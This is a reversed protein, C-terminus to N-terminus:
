FSGSAGVGARHPQSLYQAQTEPEPDVGLGGGPSDTGGDQGTEPWLEAMSGRTSPWRRWRGVSFVAVLLLGGLLLATGSRIPTSADSHQGAISLSSHRFVRMVTGPAALLLLYSAAYVAGTAVAGLPSWRLTAILGLLLGAAALMFVPRAFDSGHLVGARDGTAFVQASRDQGFAILVWALPGIVVAAILTVIHRM